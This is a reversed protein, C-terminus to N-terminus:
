CRMPWRWLMRCCKRFIRRRMTNTRPEVVAWVKQGPWRTRTAELTMRIATPHHAFDEIVLVGREEGKIEMRKRVSVFTAFARAIAAGEIGRGFAIATAALANLVNHMGALPMRIRALEAGKHVVRFETAGDRWQVDGAQWDCEATLGFTEVPCFATATLKKLEDSERLRLIKGRQPVLNVLRKFQEAIAALDPYIDAHDFELSTLVLEDPHYHLFKPVRDFFASEYEDGEVIFEKGGGLGYEQRRLEAGSRWDLLGAETGRQSFDM